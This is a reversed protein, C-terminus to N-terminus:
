SPLVLRGAARAILELVGFFLLSLSVVVNAHFFAQNVRTLDTPRVLRHEIWLVGGIVLLGLYFIWQFLPYVLPLLILWAMMVGHCVRALQLARPTGLWAPLSKLGAQRDFSEDQCAYIIDFGAVWFLVALGLVVPAAEVEARLAVWAAVPALGLAGGLWFHSWVTFRKSYSYGLLYAIVPVSAVLPIRNEPLFLLTSLVFGVCCIATFAIVSSVSILGRPLHRSATRPNLADWHRDVLRNFAMAASRAFVMCLLIGAYHRVPPLSRGEEVTLAVAMAASLVAFPLAFLTHSFRILELLQRINRIVRLGLVEREM